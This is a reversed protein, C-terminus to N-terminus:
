PVKGDGNEVSCLLQKREVSDSGVNKAWRTAPVVHIALVVNHFAVICLTDLM